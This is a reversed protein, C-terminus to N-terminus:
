EVDVELQKSIRRVGAHVASRVQSIYDAWAADSGSAGAKAAVAESSEAQIAATCLVALKGMEAIYLTGAFVGGEYKDGKLVPGKRTEAQLVGVHTYDRELKKANWLADIVEQKTSARAAPALIRFSPTTLGKFRAGQGSYWDSDPRVFRELFGREVVVLRGPDGKLAKAIQADPCPKDSPEASAPVAQFLKALRADRALLAQRNEDREPSASPESGSESKSCAWPGSILCALASMRVASGLGKVGNM